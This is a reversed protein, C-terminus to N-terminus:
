IRSNLTSVYFDVCHLLGTFSVDHEAVGWRTAEKVYHKHQMANHVPHTNDETSYIRVVDEAEAEERARCLLLRSTM